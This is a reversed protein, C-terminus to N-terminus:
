ILKERWLCSNFARFWVKWTLVKNRMGVCQNGDSGTFYVRDGAQSQSSSGTEISTISRSTGTPSSQRRFRHGSGRSQPPRIRSSHGGIDSFDKDSPPPSPSSRLPLRDGSRRPQRPQRRQGSMHPTDFNYDSAISSRTSGNLLVNKAQQSVGDMWRLFDSYMDEMSPDDPGSLVDEDLWDALEEMQDPDIGDYGTSAPFPADEPVTDVDGRIQLLARTSCFDSSTIDTSDSPNSSSGSHYPASHCASPNSTPPFTVDPGGHWYGSRDLSNAILDQEL